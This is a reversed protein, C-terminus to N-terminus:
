NRESIVVQNFNYNGFESIGFYRFIGSFSFRNIPIQVKIIITEGDEKRVYESSEESIDIGILDINSPYTFAEVIIEEELNNKNIYSYKTSINEKFTDINESTIGGQIRAHYSLINVDNEMSSVPLM